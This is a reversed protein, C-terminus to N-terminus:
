AVGGLPLVDQSLRRVATDCYKRELEIGVATRGLNRAAVLTSGSGAFPDLILSGPRTTAVLAELLPVPKEAEHHEHGLYPWRFRLVNGMDRPGQWEFKPGRVFAILEHSARFPSGLGISERDWVLCQSMYWGSGSALFAREVLNVTRYDTFVFGHGEPRVRDTLRKVVANFWHLWFQDSGLLDTQSATRGTHLSGARSYPPDTIFADVLPIPSKLMDGCYLTVAPDAYYEDM